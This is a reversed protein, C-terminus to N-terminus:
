QKLSLKSAVGGFSRIPWVDVRETGYGDRRNDEEM